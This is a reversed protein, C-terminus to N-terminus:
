INCLRHYPLQITFFLNAISKEKLYFYFFVYINTDVSNLIVFSYTLSNRTSAWRINWNNPDAVLKEQLFIIQKLSFILYSNYHNTNKFNLRSFYNDRPDRDKFQTAYKSTKWEEKNKTLIIITSNEVGSTRGESFRIRKQLWRPIKGMHFLKHQKKFYTTETYMFDIVALKIM